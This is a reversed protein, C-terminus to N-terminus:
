MNNLVKVKTAKFQFNKAELCESVATMHRLCVSITHRFFRGMTSRQVLPFIDNLEYFDLIVQVMEIM